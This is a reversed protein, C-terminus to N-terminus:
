QNIDITRTDIIKFKEIDINSSFYKGDKKYHVIIELGDIFRWSVFSQLKEFLEIYKKGSPTSLVLSFRDQISLRADNNTDEKVVLYMLAKTDKSTSILNNKELRFLDLILKDNKKFLWYSKSNELDTFLYNKVSYTHKSYYSQEYDQTLVLPTVQYKDNLFQANAELKYNEKSDKNDQINVINSVEKYSQNQIFGYALLSVGLLGIALIILSNVRWIFRFFSNNESM